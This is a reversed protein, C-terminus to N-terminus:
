RAPVMIGRARACGRWAPATSIAVGRAAALRRAKDLGVTSGDVATVGHGLGALYM